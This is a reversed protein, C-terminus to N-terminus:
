LITNIEVDSCTLLGSDPEFKVLGFFTARPCSGSPSAASRTGSPDRPWGQIPHGPFSSPKTSCNRAQPASPPFRCDRGEWLVPPWGLASLSREGEERVWSEPSLASPRPFEWRVSFLTGRSGPFLGRHELRRLASRGGRGWNVGAERGGRPALM